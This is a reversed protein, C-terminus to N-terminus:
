GHLASSALHENGGVIKLFLFSLIGSCIAMVPAIIMAYVIGTDDRFLEPASNSFFTLIPHDPGISLISFIYIETFVASLFGAILCTTLRSTLRQFKWTFVWVPLNLVTMLVAMTSAANWSRWHLVDNVPGMRYLWATLVTCIAFYLVTIMAFIFTKHVITM